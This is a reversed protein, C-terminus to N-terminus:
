VTGRGVRDIAQSGGTYESSSHCVSERDGDGSSAGSESSSKEADSDDSGDDPARSFRNNVIASHRHPNATSNNPLPENESLLLIQVPNDHIRPVNFVTYLTSLIPVSLGHVIISFLVLWYVVPYNAIAQVM